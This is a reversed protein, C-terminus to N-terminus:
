AIDLRKRIIERLLLWAYKTNTVTYRRWMRRPEQYTRYLWEFGCRQLWVPARRVAGAVVDFAGGVGMVFDVGLNIRWRSIFQEKKPSSIGVFLLKAGSARIEQVMAAEDDWFYGDHFGAVELGAHRKVSRAAVAVVVKQRAGLLYVPYHRQAAMALLRDFLDVGAVRELVGLGALRAGWVVGMGDANLIDSAQVARRIADDSQMRVLTAVNIDGYQTFTHSAIRRDIACVTEEMTLADMSAGLFLVNRPRRVAKDDRRILKALPRKEQM